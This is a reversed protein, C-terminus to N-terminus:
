KKFAGIMKEFREPVEKTLFVEKDAESKTGVEQWLARGALFGKCGVNAAASLQPLFEDFTVGRSLLIWPTNGVRETIKECLEPSEPYELKWVDPVIGDSIFGTLATDMMEFRTMSNGPVNYTVFEVFVPLNAAHSEEIVQRAFEKQLAFAPVSPNIYLLLKVGKAGDNELESATFQRDNIRNNEDGSYGSKEIRLLYSTGSGTKEIAGRYAPLGYESDILMGSMHPLLPEIIQRKLDVIAEKPVYASNGGAIMKKFSADHDLALMAYVGDKTFIEPNM